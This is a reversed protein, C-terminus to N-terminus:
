WEGKVEEADVVKLFESVAKKPDTLKFGKAEYYQNELDVATEEEESGKNNSKSGAFWLM